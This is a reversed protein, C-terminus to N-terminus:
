NNKPITVIGDHEIITQTVLTDDRYVFIEISRVQYTYSRLVICGGIGNEEVWEYFDGEAVNKWSKDKAWDYFLNGEVCERNLSITLPSDVDPKVVKGVVLRYQVYDIDDKTCSSFLMALLIMVSWIRKIETREYWTPISESGVIKVKVKDIKEEIIEGIKDIGKHTVKCKQVNSPTM